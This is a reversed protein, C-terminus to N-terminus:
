KPAVLIRQVVVNRRTDIVLVETGIDLALRDGDLTMQRVAAGAPLGLDLLLPGQPGEAKRSSAKWVIGGILLLFLLVLVIGMIYVVRKLLKVHPPLEGGEMQVPQEVESM